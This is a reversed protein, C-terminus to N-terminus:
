TVFKHSVYNTLVQVQRTNTNPDSYRYLGVSSGNGLLSIFKMSITYNRGKILKVKHDPCLEIIIQEKSKDLITKEVMLSKVTGNQVTTVQM